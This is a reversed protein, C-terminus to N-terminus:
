DFFKMNVLNNWEELSYKRFNKAVGEPSFVISLNSLDVEYSQLFYIMNKVQEVGPRYHGSFNAIEILRGQSDFKIWGASKIPGGRTFSSHQVKGCSVSM